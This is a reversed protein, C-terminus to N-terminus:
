REGDGESVRLAPAERERWVEEIMEVEFGAHEAKLADRIEAPVDDMAPLEREVEEVTADELLDVEVNLGDARGAASNTPSVVLSGSPEPMPSRSMSQTGRPRWSRRRFTPSTSKPKRGYWLDQASLPLALGLGAGIAAVWSQKMTDETTFAAPFFAGRALSNGSRVCHAPPMPWTPSNRSISARPFARAVHTEDPGSTLEPPLARRHRRRRRLPRSASPLLRTLAIRLVATESM